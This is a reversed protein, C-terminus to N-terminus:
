KFQSDYLEALEQINYGTGSIAKYIADAYDCGNEIFMNLIALANEEPLKDTKM